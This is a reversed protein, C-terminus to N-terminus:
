RLTACGPGVPRARVYVRGSRDFAVETGSCKGSEVRTTENGRAVTRPESRGSSEARVAQANPRQVTLTNKAPDTATVTGKYESMVRGVYHETEPQIGGHGEVRGPGANYAALVAKMDGHYREELWRLYRVGADINQRYDWPNVGLTRATKPMLQMVGVAGEKSVVGPEYASEVKAVADALKPDVGHREAARTIEQQVAARRAARVRDEAAAVLTLLVLITATKFRGGIRM